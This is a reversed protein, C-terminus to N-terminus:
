GLATVNQPATGNTEPVCGSDEPLPGGLETVCLREMQEPCFRLETWTTFNKECQPWEIDGLVWPPPLAALQSDRSGGDLESLDPAPDTKNAAQPATMNLPATGNTEPVCGSGEPLPEGLETVCLRAMQEPCFRVETWTSFEEECGPFEM